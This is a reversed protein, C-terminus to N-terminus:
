TCCRLIEKSEVKHSTMQFEATPITEFSTVDYIFLPLTCAVKVWKSTMGAPSASTQHRGWYYHRKFPPLLRIFSSALCLWQAWTRIAKCSLFPVYLSRWTRCLFVCWTSQLHKARQITLLGSSPFYANLIPLACWWSARQWAIVHTHKRITRNDQSTM